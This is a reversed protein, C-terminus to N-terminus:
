TNICLDWKNYYKFYYYMNSKLKNICNKAENVTDTNFSVHLKEYKNLTLNIKKEELIDFKAFLVLNIKNNYHGFRFVHEYPVFLGFFNIGKVNILINPNKSKILRIDELLGNNYKLIVEKIQFKTYIIYLPLFLSIIYYIYHYYYYFREKNITDIVYKIHEKSIKNIMKVKFGSPFGM